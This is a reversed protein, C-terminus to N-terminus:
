MLVYMCFSMVSTGTRACRTSHSCHTHTTNMTRSCWAVSAQRRPRTTRTCSNLWRWRTYTLSQFLFVNANACATRRSLAGEKTNLSSAPLWWDTLVASCSETCCCALVNQPWTTEFLFNHVCCVRHM